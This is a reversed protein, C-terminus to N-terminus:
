EVELVEIKLQGMVKTVPLFAANPSAGQLNSSTIKLHAAGIGGQGLTGDLPIWRDNLYVETWMHYLFQQRIYILGIAVRAPIGKARAMAALLVAHETCDGNLTQAVEGATAFASSIGQSTMRRSVFSELALAVQVPDSPPGLLVPSDGVPPSPGRGNNDARSNGTAEQALRVVMPSDSQILNNPERDGDTVGEPPAQPSGTGENPRVSYVTVRATHEDEPTVQQTVGEAFVRAPDASKLHVRYTIRRTEHPNPIARSVPVASLKTLDNELPGVEQLAADKTSRVVLFDQMETVEEKYVDGGEDMWLTSNMTQGGLSTQANVRLLRRTESLLQTDEFDVATMTRTAPRNTAVDFYCLSRTEGPVLPKTLLSNAVSYPGGFEPKWALSAETKRGMTSLQLQLENGVVRGTAEMPAGGQSLVSRFELLQGDPTEQSTFSSRTELRIDDRRVTLAEEQEIRLIDGGSGPERFVSTHVYGVREGALFVSDWTERELNAAPSTSPSDPTTTETESRCGALTLAMLAVAHAGGLIRTRHRAEM